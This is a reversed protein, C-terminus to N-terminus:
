HSRNNIYFRAFNNGLKKRRPIIKDETKNNMFLSLDAIFEQLQKTKTFKEKSM